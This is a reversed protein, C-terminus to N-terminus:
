LQNFIYKNEKKLLNRVFNEPWFKKQYSILINKVM